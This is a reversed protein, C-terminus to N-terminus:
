LRYRGLVVDSCEVLQRVSDKWLKNGLRKVSEWTQLGDMTEVYLAWDNIEGKMVVFKLERDKDGWGYFCIEKDTVVGRGLERSGREKLMEETIEVKM